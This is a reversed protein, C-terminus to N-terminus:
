SERGTVRVCGRAYEILESNAVGLYQEWMEAM